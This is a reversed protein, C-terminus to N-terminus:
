VIATRSLPRDFSCFSSRGSQPLHDNQDSGNLKTRTASHSQGSQPGNVKVVKSRGNQVSILSKLVFRNKWILLDRKHVCQCQAHDSILGKELRANEGIEGRRLYRDIRWRKSIIELIMMLQALPLEALNEFSSSSIKFNQFTTKFSWPRTLGFTEYFYM